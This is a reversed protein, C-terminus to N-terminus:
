NYVGGQDLDLLARQLCLCVSVYVFMGFVGSLQGTHSYLVAHAM